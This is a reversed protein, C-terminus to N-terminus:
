FLMKMIMSLLNLTTKIAKAYNFILHSSAINYFKIKSITIFILKEYDKIAGKHDGEAYKSNAIYFIVKLDPNLSLSYKFDKIAGAYDGYDHKARGRELYFLSNDPIKSIAKSYNSIIERNFKNNPEKSSNEEVYM